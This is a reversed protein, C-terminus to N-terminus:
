FMLQQISKFITNDVEVLSRKGDKFQIALTHIGKKKASLAVAIGAPGLLAAGIAGRVVASTASTSVEEGIIEYELVNEKNIFIKKGFGFSGDRIFPKNIGPEIVRGKYDGATVTNKTGMTMAGKSM